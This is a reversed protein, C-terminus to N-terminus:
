VNIAPIRKKLEDVIKDTESNMINEKLTESVEPDTLTNGINNNIGIRLYGSYNSLFEGIDEKSAICITRSKKIRSVFYGFEFSVNQKKSGGLPHVIIAYDSDEAQEIFNSLVSRRSSFDFEWDIIKIIDNLGLKNIHDNIKKMLHYAVRDGSKYSIFIKIIKSDEIEFSKFRKKYSKILKAESEPNNLIIKTPIDLDIHCEKLKGSAAIDISKVPDTPDYLSTAFVSTIEEEKGEKTRIKLSKDDRFVINIMTLPLDLLSKFLFLKGKCGGGTLERYINEVRIIMEKYIGDEIDQLGFSYNFYRREKWSCGSYNEFLVSPSCTAIIRHDDFANGESKQILQSLICNEQDEIKSSFSSSLGVNYTDYNYNNTIFPFKRSLIQCRLGINFNVVIFKKISADEANKLIVRDLWFLFTSFSSTYYIGKDQDISELGHLLHPNTIKKM